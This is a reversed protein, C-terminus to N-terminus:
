TYFNIKNRNVEDMIGTEESQEEEASGTGFVNKFTEM